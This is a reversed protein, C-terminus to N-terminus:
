AARKGARVSRDIETVEDDSLLTVPLKLPYRDLEGRWLHAATRITERIFRLPAELMPPPLPRARNLQGLRDSIFAIERHRSGSRRSDFYFSEFLLYAADFGWPVGGPHFHEWDIAAVGSPTDILNDCSFDGHLPASGDAAAPWLACYQDIARAVIPANGSLGGAAHARTGEIGDIEIRLVHRDDRLARCIPTTREPWRLPQYWAWGQIESRLAARGEPTLAVKVYRRGRGDHISYTAIESGHACNRVLAIM